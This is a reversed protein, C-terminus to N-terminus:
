KAIDINYNAISFNTKAYIAIASENNPYTGYIQSVNFPFVVGCIYEHNIHLMREKVLVESYRYLPPPFAVMGINEDNTRVKIIKMRLINLPCLSIFCDSTYKKTRDIAAKISQSNISTGTIDEIIAVDVDNSARPGVIRLDQSVGFLSVNEVYMM